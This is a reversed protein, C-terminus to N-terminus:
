HKKMRSCYENNFMLVSGKNGKEENHLDKLFVNIKM